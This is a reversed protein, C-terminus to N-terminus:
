YICVWKMNYIIDAYKDEKHAHIAFSVRHVQNKKRTAATYRIYPLEM